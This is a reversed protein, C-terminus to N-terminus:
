DIGVLKLDLHRLACLGTFAALEGAVFYILYDRTNTMRNWAHAQNRRRRMVVDIRDFVERLENVVELIHIRLGADRHLQHSFDSHARYGCAYGLRVGIYDQDAPVASTRTRRRQTRDLM